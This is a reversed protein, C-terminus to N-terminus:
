LKSRTKKLWGLVHYLKNCKSCKLVQEDEEEDTESESESEGEGDSQREDEEEEDENLLDTLEEEDWEEFSDDIEM